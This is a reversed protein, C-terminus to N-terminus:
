SQSPIQSPYLTQNILEIDDAVDRIIFGIGNMFFNSIEIEGPEDWDEYLLLDSVVTLKSLLEPFDLSFDNDEITRNRNIM